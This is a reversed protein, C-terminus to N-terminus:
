REVGHFKEQAKISIFLTEKLVEDSIESASRGKIFMKRAIEFKKSCYNESRTDSCSILSMELLDAQAAILFSKDSVSIEGNQAYDVYTEIQESSDLLQNYLRDVADNATATLTLLGLICTILLHKM